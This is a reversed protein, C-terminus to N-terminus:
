TPHSFIFFSNRTMTFKLRMETPIFGRMRRRALQSACDVSKQQLKQSGFLLTILLKLM